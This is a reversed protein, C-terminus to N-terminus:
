PMRISRGKRGRPRLYPLLLGAFGGLAVAFIGLKIGENRKDGLLAINQKQLDDLRAQLAKLEGQLQQNQGHLDIKDSSVRKIEALDRELANKENTLRQIEQRSEALDQTLKKVNDRLPSQQQRLDEIRKELRALKIQAIPEDLLYRAIVWGETQQADQTKIKAYEAGEAHELVTVVDGSKIHRLIRHNVSAGTRVPVHLVDSVYRRNSQAMLDSGQWSMLAIALILKWSVRVM